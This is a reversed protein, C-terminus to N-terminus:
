NNLQGPKQVPERKFIAVPRGNRERLAKNLLQGDLVPIIYNNAREILDLAKQMLEEHSLQEGELVPYIEIYLSNNLWGVKLPQNVIYVPTGVEIEPFLKEIDEPYMRICGHSVRMGVGFPKNTSHILYGPLGLRLAFLGLPNDAGAPVVNPLIEGQAAHEKNISEAPTWTPNEKKEIIETVGLPTDWDQRGISIPYTLVHTPQDDENETSPYYYLRYEPLNLVLGERPTHPLIRNKAVLVKTGERPLWRDVKPNAWMIENQGLDFRRAIDLLTDQEAATTLTNEGYPNGIVSDQQNEPLSYSLGFVSLSLTTLIFFCILSKLM